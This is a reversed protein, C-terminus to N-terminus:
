TIEELEWYGYDAGDGPHSGFYHGEPALEEMIPWLEEYLFDHLYEQYVQNTEAYRELDVRHLESMFADILDASLMTGSSISGPEAVKPKAM